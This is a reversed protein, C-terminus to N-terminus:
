FKWNLQGRLGQEEVGSGFQGSYSVGLTLNTHLDASLGAEVVAVDRALSRGTVTFPTSGAFAHTATPDAQNINHRWGVMGNATVAMEGVNFTTEGRLGLTAFTADLTDGVSLLAADGGRESYGDTTHNVHALGAFPELTAGGLDFTYGIDGYIQTTSARYDADLASQYGPFQVGRNVSLNHWAHDVGVRLGLQDWQGGGYLGLSYTEASGSSTQEDLSFSSQGYGGVIGLRFSDFVSTDAGIFAGGSNHEFGSANDQSDFTAWSGYAQTWVSPTSGGISSRLQRGTAERVFGSSEILATKATAHLEGTLQNFAGSATPATLTVAADYLSNGFTLGDLAVAAAAQNPTTAASSFAVDNRDISLYVTEADYSLKPALFAYDRENNWRIRSQDFRTGAFGEGATLITYHHNILYGDIASVAVGGALNAVGSIAVRDANGNLDLEVALVSDTALTVDGNISILGISNGPSITGKSELNGTIAWNGGLVSAAGVAVSGTVTIPTEVTGGSTISAGELQVNGTITTVASPESSFSISTNDGLISGGIAASGAFEIIGPADASGQGSISGGITAGDKISIATGPGTVIDGDMDDIMEGDAIILGSLLNSWHSDFSTVGNNRATLYMAWFQEPLSGDAAEPASWTYFLNNNLYYEVKNEDEILRMSISNWGGYDILSATEPLDVFGSAATTDWVELRGIGDQNTFQIIPFIAQSDVYTGGGVTAEPMASGWMGTRVYDSADGSQWNPDIWIDGGIFSNGAPVATRQQYGQWQYFSTPPQSGPDIGLKLVNFRGEFQDALTFTSPASRDITWDGPLMSIPYHSFTEAQAPGGLLIIGALVTGARLVNESSRTNNDRYRFLINGRLEAMHTHNNNRQWFTQHIQGFAVGTAWGMSRM